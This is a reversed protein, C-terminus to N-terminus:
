RYATVRSILAAEGDAGIAQAEAVGSRRGARLVKATYRSEAGSTLQRLYSVHLSATQLPEDSRGANLAASGVLELAAASIGGHIIGISNHLFESPEQYLVPPDGIGVRLAMIERLETPRPGTVPPFPQESISGSMRLHVSRVSGTGVATDDHTLECIGLSTARKPGFPRATGVVPVDPQRAITASADPSLELSLESSVTWEDDQKRYHNVLGAVFDVLLALPGLTPAGTVPNTLGGMPMSGVFLEASDVLTAVGFRGLPTNPPHVLATV